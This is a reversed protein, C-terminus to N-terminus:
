TFTISIEDDGSSEVAGFGIENTTIGDRDGGSIEKHYTQGLTIAFINGATGGISGTTIAQQTGNEWDGQFDETAKLVAEPDFSGTVDRGTIRIEGYGDAANVDPAFALTNGMDVSLTSIIAAYGGLAFGANIFPAPVTSDYSPSPLAADSETDHGTLSFTAKGPMGVELNFSVTGRCGLLKHLKGDQFYELTGSEISSSVPAYAVSTSAVITEDFGCARLLQGIEPATGAAGSGKLEVDFSVTKLHGGYVAQEKGFTAKVVNREAMRAGEFSYNLNEALVADAGASPSSDVGYSSEIKFLLVERNKLM